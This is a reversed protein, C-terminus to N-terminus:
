EGSKNAAAVLFEAFDLSAVGEWHTDCIEERFRALDGGWKELERRSPMAEGHENYSNLNFRFVEQGSADLVTTGHWKFECDLDRSKISWPIPHDKHWTM